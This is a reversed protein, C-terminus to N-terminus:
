GRKARCQRCVYSALFGARQGETQDQAYQISGPNYAIRLNNREQHILSKHRKGIESEAWERCM